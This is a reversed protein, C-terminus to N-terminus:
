NSYVRDLRGRPPAVIDHPPRRDIKRVRSRKKRRHPENTDDTFIARHVKPLDELSALNIRAAKLHALSRLRKAPMTRIQLIEILGHGLADIQVHKGLLRGPNGRLIEVALVDEKGVGMRRKLLLHECR